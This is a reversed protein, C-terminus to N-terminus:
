KMMEKWGKNTWQGDKWLGEHHMRQWYEECQECPTTPNCPKGCEFEEEDDM